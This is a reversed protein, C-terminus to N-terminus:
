ERCSAAKSYQNLESSSFFLEEADVSSSISANHIKTYEYSLCMAARSKNNSGILKYKSFRFDFAVFILFYSLSSSFWRSLFFCDGAMSHANNDTLCNFKIYVHIFIDYEMIHLNKKKPKGHIFNSKGFESGDCM